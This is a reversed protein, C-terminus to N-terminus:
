RRPLSLVLDVVVPRHDSVSTALVRGDRVDFHDDILVYDIRRVPADAPITHGPGAAVPWGDRLRSFLPELEPADPPANLDGLLLVPNTRRGIHVLMEAVQMRRVAPDRRYDLHTNFVHVPTGRVDITAALLGPHPAPASNPDQTSLRTLPHNTFSTIRHRSLVAVGFQRTGRADGPLDYIPAFRVEMGLASAIASAQDAFGSRNSWRVDVEQLGVIDANAARIVGIVSDLNKGGGGYQINYTM